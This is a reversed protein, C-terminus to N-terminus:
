NVRRSLNVKDRVVSDISNEFRASEKENKQCSPIKRWYDLSFQLRSPM